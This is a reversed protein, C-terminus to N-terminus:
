FYFNLPNKLILVYYELSNDLKKDNQKVYVMNKVFDRFLFFLKTRLQKYTKRVAM